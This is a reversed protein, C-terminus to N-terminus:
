ASKEFSKLKYELDSRTQTLDDHLHLPTAHHRLIYREQSSNKECVVVLPPLRDENEQYQKFFNLYGELNALVTFDPSSISIANILGQPSALPPGSAKFTIHYLLPSTQFLLALQSLSEKSSALLALSYSM